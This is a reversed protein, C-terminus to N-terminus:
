IIAALLKGVQIGAVTVAIASLFALLTVEGVTRAELFSKVKNTM